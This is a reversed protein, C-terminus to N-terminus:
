LTGTAFTWARSKADTVVMTQVPFPVGAAVGGAAAYDWGEGPTASYTRYGSTSTTLYRKKPCEDDTTVGSGAVDWAAYTETAAEWYYSETTTASGADGAGATGDLNTARLTCQKKDTASGVVDQGYVTFSTRLGSTHSHTLQAAATGGVPVPNRGAPDHEDGDDGGPDAGAAPVVAPVGAARRVRLVAADGGVVARLVDDGRVDAGVAVGRM